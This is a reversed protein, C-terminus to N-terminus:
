GDGTWVITGVDAGDQFNIEGVKTGDRTLKYLKTSDRSVLCLHEGNYTLGSTGGKEKEPINFYDLIEISTGNLRFRFIKLPSFDNVYFFEGDYTLGRPNMIVDNGYRIFTGIEPDVKIFDLQSGM